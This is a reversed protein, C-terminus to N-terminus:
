RQLGKGWLRARGPGEECQTSILKLRIQEVAALFKTLTSCIACPTFDNIGPVFGLSHDGM